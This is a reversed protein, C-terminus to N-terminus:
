LMGIEAKAEDSMMNENWPPDWTLEIEIDDVSYGLPSLATHMDTQITSYLPCGMSTLTMYIKVKPKESLVVRYVLGLDVISISLEPDIVTKLATWVAAEPQTTM